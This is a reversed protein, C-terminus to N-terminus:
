VGWTPLVAGGETRAPQAQHLPKRGALRDLHDAVRALADSRCTIEVPAKIPPAGTTDPAPYPRWVPRDSCGCRQAWPAM